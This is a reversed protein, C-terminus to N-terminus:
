GCLGSLLLGARLSIFWTALAVPVLYLPAISAEAGTIYDIAGIVLVAAISGAVMHLRRLAVRDSTSNM